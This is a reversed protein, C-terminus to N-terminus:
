GRQLKGADPLMRFEIGLTTGIDVGIKRVGCRHFLGRDGTAILSRYGCLQQVSIIKCEPIHVADCGVIVRHIHVIGIRM